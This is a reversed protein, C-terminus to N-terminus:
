TSNIIHKQILVKNRRGQQPHTKSFFFLFFFTTIPIKKKIMLKLYHKKNVRKEVLNVIM